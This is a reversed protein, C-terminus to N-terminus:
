NIISPKLLKHCKFALLLAFNAEISTWSPTCRSRSTIIRCELSVCLRIGIHYYKTRLLRWYYESVNLQFTNTHNLEWCRRLESCRSMHAAASKDSVSGNTGMNPSNLHCMHDVFNVIYQWPCPAGNVILVTQKNTQFQKAQRGRDSPRRGREM